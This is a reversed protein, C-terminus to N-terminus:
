GFLSTLPTGASIPHPRGELDRIMTEPAFGFSHYVTALLDEPRVPDDKVYASHSDSAGYVTGGRIGAGAMLVSQLAGWHDRGMAANIKPTRGFEGMVVVLTEDLLGTQKLDTLLASLGRDLSPLCYDKLLMDYGSVGGLAATGGHNDWPNLPNADPRFYMWNLTVLRVGAEVLRRALLFAECYHSRGYRERTAASELDLNFARKAEPAAILNFAREKAAELGFAEPRRQLQRDTSEIMSLLGRRQAVRASSVGQPFDFDLRPKGEVLPTDPLELPDHRAGLWGAHTGAYKVGDHQIPRPINVFQPLEGRAGTLCGLVAGVHPASTRKRQNRPVVLANDTYGTLMHYVSPEHNDSKHTVSRILAMTDMQQALMPLHESFQVGPVNTSIPKFKTRIGDPASLNLDFMDQQPPGGWLFVLICSRARPNGVAAVAREARLLSPLTLSGLTLQGLGILAERRYLTAPM